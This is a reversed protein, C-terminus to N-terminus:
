DITPEINEEFQMKEIMYDLFVRVAAPLTRGTLTQVEINRIDMGRDRIPIAVLENSALQHRMSIEGALHIGGEYTTFRNLTAMNNSVLVPDFLLNLRSCCIDFLQRVTTNEEPLAIPYPQLQALTVTKRHALPHTPHFVAVVPSPQRYAVKIDKAPSLNLTVGIDADGHSVRRSVEAPSSVNIHFHIGQHQKRFNAINRPLFEMAFGESCSIKVHGRNLGELAAIESVVRDSELANKRAYVALMEGAASLEMGRPRREFLTTGLIDELSNIQRSIASSAVNLHLSAESISGYRAVELFYRLATDQLRLAAKM